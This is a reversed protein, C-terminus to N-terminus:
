LTGAETSQRRGMPQDASGNWCGAPPVPPDGESARLLELVAGAVPSPFGESLAGSVLRGVNLDSVGDVDKEPKITNLIRRSLISPPLCLFVGHVNQDENLRLVEEIVEEETCHRPLCIQM